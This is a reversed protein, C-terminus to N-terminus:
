KRRPEIQPRPGVDLVALYPVGMPNCRVQKLDFWIHAMGRRPDDGAAKNKAEVVVVEVDVFPPGGLIM